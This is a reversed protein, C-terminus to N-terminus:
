DVLDRRQDLRELAVREPAPELDMGDKVVGVELEGGSSLAASLLHGLPRRRFQTTFGAFQSSRRRQSADL